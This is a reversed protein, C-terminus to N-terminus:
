DAPDHLFDFQNKLKEWLRLLESAGGVLWSVLKPHGCVYATGTPPTSSLVQRRLRQKTMTMPPATPWEISIEKTTSLTTFWLRASFIKRCPPNWGYLIGTVVPWEWSLYLKWYSTVWTRWLHSNKPRGILILFHFKESLFQCFNM